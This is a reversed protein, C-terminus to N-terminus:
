APYAQSVTYIHASTTCSINGKDQAWSSCVASGSECVDVGSCEPSVFNLQLAKATVASPSPHCLSPSYCENFTIATSVWNDLYTLRRRWAVACHLLMSSFFIHSLQLEIYLKWLNHLSARGAVWVWLAESPEWVVGAELCLLSAM